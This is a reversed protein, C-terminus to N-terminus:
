SPLASTKSARKKKSSTKGAILYVVGDKDQANYGSAADERACVWAVRGELEFVVEAGGAGLHDDALGLEEGGDEGGGNSGVQEGEVVGGRTDEDEVVVGLGGRGEGGM